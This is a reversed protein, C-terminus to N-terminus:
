LAALALKRRRLVSYVIRTLVPQDLFVVQKGHFRAQTILMSKLGDHLARPVSVGIIHKGADEMYRIAQELIERGTHSSSTIQGKKAPAKKMAVVLYQNKRGKATVTRAYDGYEVSGHPTPTYNADLLGYLRLFCREGVRTAVCSQCNAISMKRCKEKFRPLETGIERSSRDPVDRELLEHLERIDDVGLVVDGSVLFRHFTRGQVYFFLANPDISEGSLVEGAAAVASVLEQGPLVQIAESLEEVRAHGGSTVRLKRIDQLEGCDSCAVADLSGVLTVRESQCDACCIEAVEERADDLVQLIPTALAGLAEAFSSAKRSLQVESSGKKMAAALAIALEGAAGRASMPLQRLLPAALKAAEKPAKVVADKVAELIDKIRGPGWARLEAAPLDKSFFIKGQRNNYGVVMQHGGPVATAFATFPVDDQEWRSRIENQAIKDSGLNKGTYRRTTKTRPDISAARRMEKEPELQRILEKTFRLAGCTVSLARSLIAALLDRLELGPASIAAWQESPCLWIFGTRLSHITKHEEDKPDVYDLPVVFRYQVEAVRTGHASFADVREFDVNWDSSGYLPKRAKHESAYADNLKKELRDPITASGVIRYLYLSKMGRYRWEEHVLRADEEKLVPSAVFVRILAEKALGVLRPRLATQDIGMASATSGRADDRCLREIIARKPVHFLGRYHESM